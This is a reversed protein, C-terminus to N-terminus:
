EKNEFLIALVAWYLAVVACWYFVWFLDENM